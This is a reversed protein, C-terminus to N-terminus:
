ASRACKIIKSLSYLDDSKCRTYDESQWGETGQKHSEKSSSDFDILKPVSGKMMINHPSIDGHIIGLNHIHDVADRIGDLCPWVEYEHLTKDCKELAIGTILNDEVVCGFYKCINPHPYESIKEYAQIEGIFGKETCVIYGIDSIDMSKIYVDTINGQFIQQDVYKPYFNQKFVEVGKLEDVSVEDKSRAHYWRGDEEYNIYWEEKEGIKVLSESLLTRM